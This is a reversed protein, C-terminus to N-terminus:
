GELLAEMRDMVDNMRGVLARYPEPSALDVGAALLLDYPYDSGGARLLDKFREVAPAGDSRIREFLAAGATLSTAYQYVYMNYYFHQIFMWENTYLDDVLLVGDDHGHHRRLIEAYIDTIRKGSLAEGREIAEYLSLEFEAFMTQRFFTGRMHELGSGLYFLEEEPTEAHDVMYQQLILELTTSPIEAIFTAYSATEFPQSEQSYLTHMAHGWEHAFTSVSEYDDQFNLLLYPHVDYASGAMYAGARKGQQPYVNTWRHGFAVRQRDVWEDGLVSMADLTIRKADEYTFARELSVLPPYIDFYRLQEVDLMRRRLEFYRHLTPLAANVEAVLTRYVEPPMNDDFLERELVSGYGRARALFVQAQLHASLTMGVTSRFETWKGWYADFVAQRDDREEAQRHAAYGQSDLRVDEGGTLTVTPWPIDSNALLGYVSYPAGLPQGAAALVQETEDGLTHPAKRLLDDLDHRFPELRPESDVLEMIRERGVRLVEPRYWAMSEGLRSYMSQALQRNEQMEPVRLDEDASLSAWMWVRLAEKQTDSLLRSADYLAEADDGLTGRKEEISPLTALVSERAENWAEPSPYLDTLDWVYPDTPTM